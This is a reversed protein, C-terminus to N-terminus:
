HYPSWRSRCPVFCEKGVRREESRRLAAAMALLFLLPPVHRRWGPRPGLAQRVLRLSAYRLAAKKKRRLMGVYAAVMLPLLLLLWLLEPWLFRM